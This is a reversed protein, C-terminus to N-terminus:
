QTPTLGERVEATAAVIKQAADDLDNAPISRQSRVRTLIKKGLEANTGELRVVLPVHLSVERRPPSARGRRHRRVEHHRRLHQRPHGEREPDTLSSRSRRRRGERGHRRRRRRLFNAPEEGYLKIIDMTAMALGAGNVMCGITATSRSTRSTASRVGRDGQRRGRDEDRLAVIDPHRFLANGDFNVKADLV